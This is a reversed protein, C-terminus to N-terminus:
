IRWEDRWPHPRLFRNIELLKAPSLKTTGRIWNRLGVPSVGMLTAIRNFSLDSGELYCRLDALVTHEAKEASTLVRLLEDRAKLDRMRRAIRDM